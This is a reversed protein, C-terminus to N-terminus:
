SVKVFVIVYHAIPIINKKLISVLTVSITWYGVAVLM